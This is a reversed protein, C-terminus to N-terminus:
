TSSTRQSVQCIRGCRLAKPTRSSVVAPQAIPNQDRKALQNKENM